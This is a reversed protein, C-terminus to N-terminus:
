SGYRGKFWKFARERAEPTIVFDPDLVDDIILLTIRRNKICRDRVCRVLACRDGNVPCKM